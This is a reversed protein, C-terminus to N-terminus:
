EVKNDTGLVENLIGIAMKLYRLASNILQKPAPYAIGQGKALIMVHELEELLERCEELEERIDDNM